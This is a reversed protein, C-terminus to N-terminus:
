LSSSTIDLVFSITHIENGPTACYSYVGNQLYSCTHMLFLADGAVNEFTVLSKVAENRLLRLFAPNKGTTKLEEQVPERM